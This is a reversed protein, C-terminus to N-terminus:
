QEEEPLNECGQEWVVRRVKALLESPTVPKMIHTHRTTAQRGGCMVIVRNSPDKKLYWTALDEVSSGKLDDCDQDLILLDIPQLKLRLLATVTSAVSDVDHDQLQLLRSFTERVGLHPSVVLIVSM